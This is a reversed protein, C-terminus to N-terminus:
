RRRVGGSALGKSARPTTESGSCKCPENGRAVKIRNSFTPAVRLFTSDVSLCKVM